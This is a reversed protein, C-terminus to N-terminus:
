PCTRSTLSKGGPDCARRLPTEILHFPVLEFMCVLVLCVKELHVFGFLREDHTIHRPLPILFVRCSYSVHICYM